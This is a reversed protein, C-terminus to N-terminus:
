FDKDSKGFLADQGMSKMVNQVEERPKDLQEKVKAGENYAEITDDPSLHDAVDSTLVATADRYEEVLKEINKMKEKVEVMEKRWKIMKEKLAEEAKKADEAKKKLLDENIQAKKQEGM